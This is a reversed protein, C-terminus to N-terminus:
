TGGRVQATLRGALPDLGCADRLAREIYVRTMRKRWYHSLDTNDLPRSPKDAAESVEAILDDDPREGKLPELLATIDVPHSGVAGLAARAERVRGEDWRVAVAVGLIPFDFAPRRRLKWYASTMRGTVAPLHISTIVEDRRKTTYDIGDDRYLGAAPIRRRGDTGHLTLEAMLTLAVPASDSSSVAWCRPSSRAVLCIDGDKKMCFGVAKRWAYTQNYYNCRPDVLLNGGLTGMHRIQPTSVADSAQALARYAGSMAPHRALEDLTVRAGITMGDEPRGQVGHGDPLGALSILVAVDFQRRKLNPVLDTGGAIFMSGPHDAAMAAAEDVSRPRLYALRPLRLM